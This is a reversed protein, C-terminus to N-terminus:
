FKCSVVVNVNNKTGNMTLIAYQVSATKAGKQTCLGGTSVTSSGVGCTLTRFETMSNVSIPTVECYHTGAEFSTRGSDLQKLTGQAGNINVQYHWTVGFAGSTIGLLILGLLAKM